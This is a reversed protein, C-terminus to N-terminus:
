QVEGNLSLFYSWLARFVFIFDEASTSLNVARVAAQSGESWSGQTGLVSSKATGPGTPM